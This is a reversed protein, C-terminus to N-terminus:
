IPQTSHAHNRRRTAQPHAGSDHNTAPAGRVSHKTGPLRSPPPCRRLADKRGTSLSRADVVQEVALPLLQGRRQMGISTEAAGIVLLSRPARQTTHTM